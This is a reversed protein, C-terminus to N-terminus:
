KIQKQQKAASNSRATNDFTSNNSLECDRIFALFEAGSRVEFGSDLQINNGAYYSIDQGSIVITDSGIM